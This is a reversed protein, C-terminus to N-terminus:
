NDTWVSKRHKKGTQPDIMRTCPIADATAPKDITRISFIRYFGNYEAPATDAVVQAHTTEGAAITLARPEAESYRNSLKLNLTHTGPSLPIAMCAGNPLAPYEEGDILIGPKIAGNVFVKPRSIHLTGTQSSLESEASLAICPFLLAAAALIAIRMDITPTPHVAARPDIKAGSHRPDSTYQEGDSARIPV